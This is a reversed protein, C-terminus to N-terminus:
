AELAVELDPLTILLNMPDLPSQEFGIHEYFTRAEPSIAHVMLGRIGITDAARIVRLGADRVLARGIGAGQLARDVALRGLMVVPIPDPMNRRFRSPAAIVTIAGSALAYYAVVRHGHCVVFTRSAGSAQNKKARLRLWADLSEVGCSFGECAHQEGLPESASLKLNKGM